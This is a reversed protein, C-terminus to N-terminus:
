SGVNAVIENFRGRMGELCDVYAVAASIEDAKAADARAPDIESNLDGNLEPTTTVLSNAAVVLETQFMEFSTTEYGRSSMCLAWDREFEIYAKDNLLQQIRDTSILTSELAPGYKEFAEERSNSRCGVSNGEPDGELTTQYANQESESMALRLRENPDDDLTDQSLNSVVEDVYGFGNAAAGAADLSYPSGAVALVEADPMSREIYKFGGSSMCENTLREQYAWMAQQIELASQAQPQEEDSCGSMAMGAILIMAM